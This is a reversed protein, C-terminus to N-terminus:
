SDAPAEVEFFGASCQVLRCDQLSPQTANRSATELPQWVGQGLVAM